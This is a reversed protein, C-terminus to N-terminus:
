KGDVILWCAASLEVYDAFYQRDPSIGSKQVPKKFAEWWWHNREDKLFAAKTKAIVGSAEQADCPRAREGGVTTIAIALRLQERIYTTLESTM